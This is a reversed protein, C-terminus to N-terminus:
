GSPGGSSPLVADPVVEAEILAKDLHGPIVLLGSLSAVPGKIGVRVVHELIPTEKAPALPELLLIGHPLLLFDDLSSQSLAILHQSGERRSSQGVMMVVVKSGM